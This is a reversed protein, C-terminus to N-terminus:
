SEDNNLECRQNEREEKRQNELYKREKEEDKQKQYVDWVISLLIAPVLTWLFAWVFPEVLYDGISGSSRQSEQYFIAMLLVIPYFVVYLLIFRM